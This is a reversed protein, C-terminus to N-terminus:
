MFKFYPNIAPRQSLCTQRFHVQHGADSYLANSFKINSFSLTSIQYLVMLNPQKQKFLPLNELDM